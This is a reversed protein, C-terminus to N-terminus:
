SSTQTFNVCFDATRSLLFRTLRLLESYFARPDFKLSFIATEKFRSNERPPNNHFRLANKHSEQSHDNQEGTSSQCELWGLGGGTLTIVDDTLALREGPDPTIVADIPLVQRIDIVDGVGISDIGPL